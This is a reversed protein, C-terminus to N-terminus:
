KNSNLITENVRNSFAQSPKRSKALRIGFVFDLFYVLTFIGVVWLIKAQASTSFISFVSQIILVYFVLGMIGGANEIKKVVFKSYVRRVIFGTLFGMLIVGIWGFNFFAEGYPGAPMGYSTSGTLEYAILVTGDIIEPKNDWISRPIPAYIINILPKGYQFDVNGNLLSEILLPVTNARSTASAANTILGWMSDISFHSQSAKRLVGIAEVFILGIGGLLSLQWLKFRRVKYHYLMLYPLVTGLIVNARGGFFTLMVGTGILILMSTKKYGGYLLLLAAIGGLGVVQRLYGFGSYAVTTNTMANLMGQFGGMISMSYVFGLLVTSLIVISIKIPNNIKPLTAKNATIKITERSALLYGLYVFLYWCIFVMLSYVIIYNPYQSGILDKNLFDIIALLTSTALIIFPHFIDKLLFIPLIILLFCILVFLGVVSVSYDYAVIVAICILVSCFLGIVIRPLSIKFEKEHLNM